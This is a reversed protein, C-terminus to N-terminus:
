LNICSLEPGNVTGSNFISLIFYVIMFAPMFDVNIIVSCQLDIRVAFVNVQVDLLIFPRCVTFREPCKHFNLVGVIEMELAMISM